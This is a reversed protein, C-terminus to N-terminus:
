PGVHRRPVVRRERDIGLGLRLRGLPVLSALLVAAPLAQREKEPTQLQIAM